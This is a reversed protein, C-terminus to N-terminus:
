RCLARVEQQAASVHVWLAFQASSRQSLVLATRPNPEQCARQQADVLAMTSTGTIQLSMSWCKGSVTPPAESENMSLSMVIKLRHHHTEARKRWKKSNRRVSNLGPHRRVKKLGRRCVTTPQRPSRPHRPRRSESEWTKQWMYILTGSVDCRLGTHIKM